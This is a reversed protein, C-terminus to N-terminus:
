WPWRLRRCHDSDDSREAPPTVDCGWWSGFFVPRGPDGHEFSVLVEDDVAPLFFMGLDARRVRLVSSYGGNSGPDFRHQVGTLVYAGDFRGGAGQLEITAGVKIDPIGDTLVEASVRSAIREALTRLAFANADDVSSFREGVNVTLTAGFPEASGDGLPITPAVARGTLPAGTAADIGIVVVGQLSSTSSLAALFAVLRANEGSGDHDVTIAASPAADTRPVENAAHIVVSPPTSDVGHEVTVVKGSFISTAARLPSQVTIEIPDGPSISGAYELGATGAVRIRAADVAGRQQELVVRPQAASPSAAGNITVFLTARDQATPVATTLLSVLLLSSGRFNRM